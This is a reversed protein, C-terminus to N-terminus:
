ALPQLTPFSSLSGPLPSLPLRHVTPQPLLSVGHVTLGLFLVPPHSTPVQPLRSPREPEQPAGSSLLDQAMTHLLSCPASSPQPGPSPPITPDPNWAPLLWLCLLPASCEQGLQAAAAPSSLHEPLCPHPAQLDPGLCSPGPDSLGLAPSPPPLFLPPFLIVEMPGHSAGIASLASPASDWRCGRAHSPWALGRSGGTSSGSSQESASTSPPM